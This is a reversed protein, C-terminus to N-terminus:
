ENSKVIKIEKFKKGDMMPKTFSMNWGDKTEQIVISQRTTPGRTNIEICKNGLNLEKTSGDEFEIICKGTM